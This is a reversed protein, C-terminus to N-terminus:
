FHRSEDVSEIPMVRWLNTMQSCELVLKKLFDKRLNDDLDLDEGCSYLEKCKEVVFDCCFNVKLDWKEHLCDVIRDLESRERFLLWDESSGDDRRITLGTNFETHVAYIKMNNFEERSISCLCRMFGDVACNVGEQAFVLHTSTLIAMCAVPPPNDASVYLAMSIASIWRQLIEENPCSIQLACLSNGATSTDTSFTIQFVYKEDNTLDIRCVEEMIDIYGDLSSTSDLSKQYQHLNQQWYILSMFLIDHERPGFENSLFRKIVVALHSSHSATVTLPKIKENEKEKKEESNSSSCKSNLYIGELAIKNTITRKLAFVITKGLIKSCTEVLFTKLQHGTSAQPSIVFNVNKSHFCLVQADISATLHELDTLPLAILIEFKVPPEGNVLRNNNREFAEVALEEIVVSAPSIGLEANTTGTVVNKINEFGKSSFKEKVNEEHQIREGDKICLELQLQIIEGSDLFIEGELLTENENLQSLEDDERTTTSSISDDAVFNLQRQQANKQFEAHDLEFKRENEEGERAVRENEEEAKRDIWNKTSTCPDEPLDDVLGELYSNRSIECFSGNTSIKAASERRKRHINMAISNNNLNIGKFIPSDSITSQVPSMTGDIPSSILPLAIPTDEIRFVYPPRKLLILNRLCSNREYHLKKLSDNCAIFGFMQFQLTRRNLSDKLWALSLERRNSCNWKEKLDIREESPILERVFSWYCKDMKILGHAFFGDLSKVLSLIDSNSMNLIIKQDLSNKTTQVIENISSLIASEIKNQQEYKDKSTPLSPMAIPAINHFM